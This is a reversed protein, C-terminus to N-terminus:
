IKLTEEIQLEYELQEIKASLTNKQRKTVDNRDKANVLQTIAAKTDGMLYLFDARALASSVMSGVGAEAQALLNYYIPNINKHPRYRRLIELALEPQQDNLLSKAYTFILPKYNPYLRYADQFIKQAAVFDNQAIELKGMAILYAINEKDWSLLTELQKRAQDYKGAKILALAYGYRDASNKKAAALSMRHTFFELADTNNKYSNVKLKAIVLEYNASNKYTDIPYEAARARSEAIRTLTLPHTRLFEPTTNSTYEAKQQLREFFAPMSYPNYGSRALLQIGISDAEEENKRTFNIQTQLRAGQAVTLAAAGAEPHIIGILIAGLLAAAVPIASQTNKEFTRAIHRQTVHVIEHALVAVLESENQSNLITGSNVGIVGGPAAFANIQEANIVFFTFPLTTNDSHTVLQSGISEIYSEIEPDSIIEANKRVEKLFARGLRKEFDPSIINGSSDGIEPLDFTVAHTLSSTFICFICPYLYTKIQLFSSIISFPHKIKIIINTFVSFYVILTAM